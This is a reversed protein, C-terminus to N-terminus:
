DKTYNITHWIINSELVSFLTPNRDFISVWFNYERNDNNEKIMFGICFEIGPNYGFYFPNSFRTICLDIQIEVIMHYYCRPSGEDSYHVLGLYGQSTKIFTTSGRIKDFIPLKMNRKAFVIIENEPIKKNDSSYQCFMKEQIYGIELPSWKYIFLETRPEGEHELVFPIWNKECWNKEPSEVFAGNLIKSCNIDYDGTIIETKGNQRRVSAIYHINSKNCSWEYRRMCKWLRLDELGVSFKNNNNHFDEGNSYLLSNINNDDVEKMNIIKYLSNDDLECLYNKSRLIEDSKDPFIYAGTESIFYNIYRINLYNKSDICISSASSARYGDIDSLIKDNFTLPVKRFSKIQSCYICSPFLVYNEGQPYWKIFYNSKQYELLTSINKNHNERNWEFELWALFNFDWVFTKYRELFHPLQIKHYSCLSKVSLVSGILFRGVFRWYPSKVFTMDIINTESLKDWTGGSLYVYDKDKDIIKYTQNSMFNLYHTVTSINVGSYSTDLSNMDLLIDFDIWAVFMNDLVSERKFDFHSETNLTTETMDNITKELLEYKLHQFLIHLFTDKEINRERPLIDSIVMKNDSIYKQITKYVSCEYLSGIDCLLINTNETNNLISDIDGENKYIFITMKINTNKLDFIIKNFQEQTTENYHYFSVLRINSSM